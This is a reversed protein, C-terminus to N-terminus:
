LPRRGEDRAAVRLSRRVFTPHRTGLTREDSGTRSPTRDDSNWDSAPPTREQASPEAM